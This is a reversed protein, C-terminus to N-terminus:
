HDGYTYTRLDIAPKLPRTRLRHLPPEPEDQPDEEEELQPSRTYLYALAAAAAVMTGGLVALGPASLLFEVVSVPM